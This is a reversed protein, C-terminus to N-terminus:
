AGAVKNTAKTLRSIRRSATKWHILGKSSARRLLSEARRLAGAAGEADDADIATRVKKVATRMEGRAGRNRERRKLAQRARKKASKHSAM